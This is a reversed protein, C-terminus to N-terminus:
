DCALEAPEGSTSTFSTGPPAAAPVGSRIARARSTASPSRAWLSTTILVGFAETFPGVVEPVIGFCLGLCYFAPTNSTTDPRTPQQSSRTASM